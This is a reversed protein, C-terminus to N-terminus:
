HCKTIWLGCFQLWYGGNNQLLKILCLPCIIMERKISLAKSKKLYYKQHKENCILTQDFLVAVIVSFM